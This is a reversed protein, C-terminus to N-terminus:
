YGRLVDVENMLADGKLARRINAAINRVALMPISTGAVHPTILIRPHSWFPHERPLPEVTAVDLTAGAIKGSKLAELLDTEVLHLGRGMNILQMGARCRSFIQNSLIHRTESTLPLVNILIHCEGVMRHLGDRGAYSQVGDLCKSTRSWGLIHFGEHHLALAIERGIEGLGLVGVVTERTLTAPMFRWKAERAYQEFVDFRRHYRYVAAKAYDTMTRALSADVLRALPIRPPIENLDLQNIGAGLSLIARLNRFRRLGGDPVTWILAIDVAEPHELSELTSFRFEEFQTALAARWGEASDIESHFFINPKM